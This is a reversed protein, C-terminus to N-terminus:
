DVYNWVYGKYSKFKNKCAMSIGYTNGGVAIAGESVSLYINIIEGMLSKQIIARKNRSHNKLGNKYAHLTNESSSTWELNSYHNNNKNGDIHNVYEKGEPAEDNFLECVIRHLKLTKQKGNKWVIIKIYGARDEQVKMPFGNEYKKNKFSVVNGFNSVQYDEYEPINRWIEKEMIM